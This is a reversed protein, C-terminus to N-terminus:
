EPCTPLLPADKLLPIDSKADVPISPITIKANDNEAVNLVLPFLNAEKIINCKTTMLNLREVSFRSAEIFWLRDEEKTADYPADRLFCDIHWENDYLFLLVYYYM